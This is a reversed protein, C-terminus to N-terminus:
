ATRLSTNIQAAHCMPHEITEAKLYKCPDTPDTFQNGLVDAGFSWGTHLHTEGLSNNRGRRQKLASGSAVALTAARFLM